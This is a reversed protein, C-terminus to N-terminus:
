HWFMPQQEASWALREGEERDPSTFLHFGSSVYRTETGLTVTNVQTVRSRPVEQTDATDSELTGGHDAGQLLAAGYVFAVQHRCTEGGSKRRSHRDLMRDKGKHVMMATGAVAAM